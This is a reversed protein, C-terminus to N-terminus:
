CVREADAMFAHVEDLRVQLRAADGNQACVLARTVRRGLDEYADLVAQGDDYDGVMDDVATTIAENLCAAMNNVSDQLIDYDAQEM